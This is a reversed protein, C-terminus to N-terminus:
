KSVEALTPFVSLMAEAGTKDYDVTAKRKEFEAQLADDVAAIKAAAERATVRAAIVGDLWADTAKVHPAAYIPTDDGEVFIEEGGYDKTERRLIKAM